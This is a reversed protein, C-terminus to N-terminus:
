TSPAGVTLPPSCPAWMARAAVYGCALPPQLSLARDTTMPGDHQLRGHQRVGKRKNPFTEPSSFATLLDLQALRAEYKYDADEIDNLALAAEDNAAHPRPSAPYQTFALCVM